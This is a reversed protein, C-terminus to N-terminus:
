RHHYVTYFVSCLAGPRAVYKYTRLNRHAHMISDHEPTYIYEHVVTNDRGM